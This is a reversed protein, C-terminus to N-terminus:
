PEERSELIQELRRIDELDKPRGAERKLQILHPISAIRVSTSGLTAERSQAWLESLEIPHEVFLDVVLMPDEPSWFSFVRMGKDRIWRARTEADVFDRAPVPVRPELGLESLADVARRAAEPELDVVLDVDLTFRAHGHLVAALGGVVVYRVEAENLARFIREYNSMAANYTAYSDM